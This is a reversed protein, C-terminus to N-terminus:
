GHGVREIGAFSDGSYPNVTPIAIREATQRVQEDRQRELDRSIEEEIPPM